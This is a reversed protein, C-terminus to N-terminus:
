VNKTKSARKDQVVWNAKKLSMKSKRNSFMKAVSQRGKSGLTIMMQNFDFIIKFFKKKRLSKFLIISYYIIWFIYFAVNMGMLWWIYTIKQVINTQNDTTMIALTITLIM